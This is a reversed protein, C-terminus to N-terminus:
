DQNSFPLHRAAGLRWSDLVRCAGPEYWALDLREARCRAPLSPVTAALLARTSAVSVEPSVVDLTLHPVVEEFRGAYPPHDPFAEFVRATLAHFPDAPVPRLHVLGDAFVHLDELVFDFPATDAAIAALRALDGATPADVFPGIVTVHAHTFAPDASVYDADYHAHRARVFPELAPVPVQVVSHGPHGPRTQM